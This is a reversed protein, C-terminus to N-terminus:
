DVIVSTSTSSSTSSSSAETYISNIKKNMDSILENNIKELKAYVCHDILRESQCSKQYYDIETLTTSIMKYIEYIHKEVLDINKNDFCKKIENNIKTKEKTMLSDNYCIYKFPTNVNKEIKQILDNANNSYKLNLDTLNKKTEYVAVSINLVKSRLDKQKQLEVQTNAQICYFGSLLVCFIILINM